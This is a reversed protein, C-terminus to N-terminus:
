NCKVINYFRDRCKKNYEFFAMLVLERDKYDSKEIFNRLVNKCEPVLFGWSLVVPYFTNVFDNNAKVLLGVTDIMNKTPKIVVYQEDIEFIQLFVAYLNLSLFQRLFNLDKIIFGDIDEVWRFLSMSSKNLKIFMEDKLLQFHKMIQDGLETYLKNEKKEKITGIIFDKFNEMSNLLFNIIREFFLEQYIFIKDNEKIDDIKDELQPILDLILYLVQYYVFISGYYKYIQKVEDTVEELSLIYKNIPEIKNYLTEIQILTNSILPYNKDIYQYLYRNISERTKISGDIKIGLKLKFNTLIEKYEDYYPNHAKEPKTTIDKSKETNEEITLNNQTDKSKPLDDQKNDNNEKRLMFYLSLALIIM